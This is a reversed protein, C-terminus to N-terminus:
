EHSLFEKIQRIGQNSIEHARNVVKEIPLPNELASEIQKVLGNADKPQFLYGYEGESLIESPGVECNSAVVTCGNALAELISMSFGESISSHIFLRCRSLYENPNDVNGLLKVQGQLNYQTVLKEVDKRNPGDGAIYLPHENRIKIPLMSYGKLLTPYDKSRFDLRAVALLYQERKRLKTLFKDDSLFNLCTAAKTKDMKKSQPLEYFLKRQDESIFIIQQCKKLLMWYIPFTKSKLLAKPNCHVWSLVHKPNLVYSILLSTLTDSFNIVTAQQSKLIRRYKLGVKVASFFGLLKRSVSIENPVVQVNKPLKQLMGSNLNPHVPFLVIEDNIQHALNNFVTEVGGTDFQDTVFILKHM